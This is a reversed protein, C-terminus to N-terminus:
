SSNSDGDKNLDPFDEDMGELNGEGTHGYGSTM